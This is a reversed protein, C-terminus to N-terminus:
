RALTKFNGARFSNVNVYAQDVDVFSPLHEAEADIEPLFVIDNGDDHVEGSESLDEERGVEVGLAIRAFYDLGTSGGCLTTASLKVSCFSLDISIQLLLYPDLKIHDFENSLHNLWSVLILDKVLQVLHRPM